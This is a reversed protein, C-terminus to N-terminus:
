KQKHMKYSFGQDNDGLVEVFISTDSVKTYRIKKPFDHSLNEFSFTDTIGDNLAFPIPQASNQDLVQAEYVIKGDLAEIKLFESVRKQGNRLEYSQGELGNSTIKWEEFTPKNEMKWTGELFHLDKLNHNAPTLGIVIFALLSLATKM